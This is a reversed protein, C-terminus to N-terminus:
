AVKWDPKWRTDKLIYYVGQKFMSILTYTKSDRNRFYQAAFSMRFEMKIIYEFFFFLLFFGYVVGGMYSLLDFLRYYSRQNNVSKDSAEIVIMNATEGSTTPIDTLVDAVSFSTITNKVSFPLLGTDTTTKATQIQYYNMLSPKPYVSFVKRHLSYSLLDKSALNVNTNVTFFEVSGCPSSTSACAPPCTFNFKLNNYISSLRDAGGLNFYSNIPLCTLTKNTYQSLKSVSNPLM